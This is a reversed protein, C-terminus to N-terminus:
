ADRHRRRSEEKAKQCKLALRDEPGALSNFFELSTPVRLGRRERAKLYDLGNAMWKERNCGRCALVINTDDTRGGSSVPRFHELEFAGLPERCYFCRADQRRYSDLAAAKTLNGAARDLNRQIRSSLDM